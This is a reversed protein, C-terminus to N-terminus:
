LIIISVYGSDLYPVMLLRVYLPLRASLDAILYWASSRVQVYLFCGGLGVCSIASDLRLIGRLSHCMVGDVGFRGLFRVTFM